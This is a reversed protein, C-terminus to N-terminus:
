DTAVLAPRVRGWADWIASLGAARTGLADMLPGLELDGAVWVLWEDAAVEAESYLARIDDERPWTRIRMRDLGAYGVALSLDRAAPVRDDAFGGLGDYHFGLLALAEVIERRERDSFLGWFAHDEPLILFGAEIARAVIADALATIRIQWDAVAALDSGAIATVVRDRAARDGRVVRLIASQEAITDEPADKPSRFPTLDQQTPWIGAFPHPAEPAQAPTTAAVHEECRALEERAVRCAEDAGDASIRAADAELALRDLAVLREPMEATGSEMLRRAERIDTNAQNIGQLWRRAAAESDDPTAAAADELRFQDRMAAKASDVARPNSLERARDIQERLADFARQADRATASAARSRERATTAAACRQDVGARPEACPDAPSGESAAPRAGATGATSAPDPLNGESDNTGAVALGVAADALTPRAPEVPLRPRVLREPSVGIDRVADPVRTRPAAFPEPKVAIAVSSGAWSATAPDTGPRRFPEVPLGAGATTRRGGDIAVAVAVAPVPAPAILVRTRTPTALVAAPLASAAVTPSVSAPRDPWADDDPSGPLPGQDRFRWPDALTLSRRAGIANPSITVRVERRPAAWSRVTALFAAGLAGGLVFGLGLFAIESSNV